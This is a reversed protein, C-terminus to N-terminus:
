VVGGVPMRTGAQQNNPTGFTEPSAFAGFILTFAANCARLTEITYTTVNAGSRGASELAAIAELHTNLLPQRVDLLGKVNGSDVLAQIQAADITTPNATEEM